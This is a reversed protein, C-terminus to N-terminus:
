LGKGGVPSFEETEPPGEVLEPMDSAWAAIESSKTAREHEDRSAWVETLFVVNPESPSTSVVMLECAPNSAQIEAAELFKSVLRDRSGEAATLRTHQGFGSM